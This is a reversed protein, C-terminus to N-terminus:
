LPSPSYGIDIQLDHGKAAAVALYDCRENSQDGSHGKVWKITVIHQNCLDLLREWLDPNIAREKKNRMWNNSRWRSAWGKNIADVVYKSDSYVDVTSTKPLTELAKIVALIEMRNNTTLQYGASIEEYKETTIIIAGYGGPGPNGLCSGDTYIVANTKVYQIM